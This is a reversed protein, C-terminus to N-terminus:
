TFAVVYTYSFAFSQKRIDKIRTVFISGCTKKASLRMTQMFKTCLQAYTVMLGRRGLPYNDTAREEQREDLIDRSSLVRGRHDCVGAKTQLDHRSRSLVGTV